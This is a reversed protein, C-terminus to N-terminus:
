EITRKYSKTILIPFFSGIAGNKCWEEFKPTQDVNVKTTGQWFRGVLRTNSWIWVSHGHSSLAITVPRTRRKKRQANIMDEIQEKTRM